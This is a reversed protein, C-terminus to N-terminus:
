CLEKLLRGEIARRSAYPKFGNILEASARCWDQKCLYGWTVPAFKRWGAVGYQYCVSFIVAQAQAPLSEFSVGSDREYAPAIYTKCDGAIVCEDLLAATDPSIILPLRYLTSLADDRKLGFYPRLVNVIGMPLGYGLLAKADYAGLDIGTGITVGSSDIATFDTHNGCVPYAPMASSTPMSRGVYNKGVGDSNRRSPVYGVAVRRGEVQALLALIADIEIAM